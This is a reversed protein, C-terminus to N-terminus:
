AAIRRTQTHAENARPLTAFGSCLKPTRVCVCAFVCVAYNGRQYELLPVTSEM